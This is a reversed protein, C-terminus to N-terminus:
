NSDGCAAAGADAPDRGAAHYNPLHTVAGDGERITVAASASDGTGAAIGGAMEVGSYIAGCCYTGGYIASGSGTFGAFSAPTGAAALLMCTVREAGVFAAIHLPTWGRSGVAFPDAGADLLVGVLAEERQQLLQAALAGSSASVAGGGGGGSIGGSLAARTAGVSVARTASVAVHLPTDGAHDISRANAGAPLLVAAVAARDGDACSSALHLATQGYENKVNVGGSVGRELLVAAAGADAAFAAAWLEDPSAQVPRVLSSSRDVFPHPGKRGGHM